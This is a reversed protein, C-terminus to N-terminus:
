LFIGSTTIIGDHRARALLIVAREKSLTSISIIFRNDSVSPMQSIQAQKHVAEISEDQLFSVIREAEIEGAAAYIDVTLPIVNAPTRHHSLVGGDDPCIEVTSQYECRCIPCHMTM